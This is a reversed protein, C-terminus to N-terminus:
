MVQGIGPNSQLMAYINELTGKSFSIDANLILHYESEGIAREIAINQAHGFGINANNFIYETSPDAAFCKLEDGPSNDILYVKYTLTTQAICSLLNKIEAPDNKYLVVSITLQLKEM